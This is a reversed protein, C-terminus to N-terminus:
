AINEQNIKALLEQTIDKGGCLNKILSSITYIPGWPFGWWGLILSILSYVLGYKLSSEGAKIFYIRSSRRFTMIICSICYEYIVFKAGRILEDNIQVNSLEEMGKIM